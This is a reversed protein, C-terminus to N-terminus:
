DPIILSRGTMEEPQPIGMLDLVTPAVDSLGGDKRLDLPRNSLICFPVPNTTHATHPSRDKEYVMDEANGHDSTIIMAGGAAAVAEWV